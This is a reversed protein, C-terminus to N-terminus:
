NMSPETRIFVKCKYISNVTELLVTDLTQYYNGMSIKGTIMCEQASAAVVIAAKVRAVIERKAAVDPSIIM